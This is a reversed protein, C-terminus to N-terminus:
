TEEERQHQHFTKLSGQIYEEIEAEIEECLHQFESAKRDDDRWRELACKATSFDECLSRFEPMRVYLRRISLEHLPFRRIVTALDFM